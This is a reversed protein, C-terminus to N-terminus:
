LKLIEKVAFEIGDELPGKTIYSAYKKVEEPATNMVIAIDVAELMEIDNYNDGFGFFIHKPFKKRFVEIGIGKSVGDNIVDYGYPNVKIFRLSPFENIYNDISELSYVGLSYVLNQNLYEYSVKKPIPIDFYGCFFDLVNQNPNLVGYLDKSLIATCLNYHVLRLIDDNSIPSSFLTEDKFYVYAGNNLIAGDFSFLEFIDKMQGLCRGTSLILLDGQDKLYKLTNIASQPVCGHISLTGDVDFFFIRNM